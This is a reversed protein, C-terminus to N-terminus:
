RATLLTTSLPLGVVPVVGHVRRHDGSAVLPLDGSANPAIWCRFAVNQGPTAATWRAFVADVKADAGTGTQGSVSAWAFAVALAIAVGVGLRRNTNV